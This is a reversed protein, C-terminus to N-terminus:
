STPSTTAQAAAAAEQAALEAAITGRVSDDVISQAVQGIVWGIAAFAFLSLTAQLLITEIAATHLWGRVVVSLM